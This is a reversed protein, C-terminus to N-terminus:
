GNKKSGGLCPPSALRAPSTQWEDPTHVSLTLAHLGNQLEAELLRHVLRHREVRSRGIFSESAVTVKFHTESGPAVSHQHSENEVELHIPALADHLTKEILIQRTMEFTRRSYRTRGRVGPTARM